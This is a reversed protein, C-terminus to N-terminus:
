AAKRAAGTAPQVRFGAGILNFSNIVGVLLTLTVQEEGTFQASVAAYVDDPAHTQPLLILAETWGLAARERQNYLTSERWASLMYLREETEGAKRAEATHLALCMACGNIQSARIKVLEMLGPELGRGVVTMGFDVLPQLLDPGAAFPNLRATM